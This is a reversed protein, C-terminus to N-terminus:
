SLGYWTRRLDLPMRVVRWRGDRDHVSLYLFGQGSDDIDVEPSYLSHEAIEGLDKHTLVTEGSWPFLGFGFGTKYPRYRIEQFAAVTARTAVAYFLHYAAGHRVVEPAASLLFDKVVPKRDEWSVGDRSVAQWIRFQPQGQMERAGSYWMWYRDGDHIVCPDAISFSDEGPNGEFSLVPEAEAKWKMGDESVARGIQYGVAVRSDSTASYWMEYRGNRKLVAPSTVQSKGWEFGPSLIPGGAQDKWTAGGDESVLAGLSYGSGDNGDVWARLLNGERILTMDAIDARAWVSRAPDLVVEM